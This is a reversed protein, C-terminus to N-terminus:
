SGAVIERVVEPCERWTTEYTEALPAPVYTWADLFIPLAPLEDGVAIPEVYATVPEDASYAIASLPKDAPLEFPEDEFEDWIAKHIGQPDRPTPPFLDVVLLSIRQRLLESSKLVFSRLAHRSSKNGPSVIEIVAIVEGLKHKIAIRNAKGAYTDLEASTVIRARPPSDAVATGGSAHPKGSTPRRQLTVVDPIPGSLIQEALAFYGEPLIGGNLANRIEITWAQHFDHFIGADVRSWDHIPM